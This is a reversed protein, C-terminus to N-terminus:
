HKLRIVQSVMAQGENARDRLIRRTVEKIKPLVARCSIHLLWRILKPQMRKEPREPTAATKGLSLAAGM